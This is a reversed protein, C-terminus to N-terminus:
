DQKVQNGGRSCNQVAAAVPIGRQSQVCLQLPRPHRVGHVQHNQKVPARIHTQGFLCAADTPDVDNEDKLLMTCKDYQM